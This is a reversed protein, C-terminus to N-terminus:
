RIYSLPNKRSDGATVEFHLHTGTSRGTTGVMAVVEGRKVADGAKVFLKSAHAYRTKLGHGHEILVMLGYGSSNWGATEVIGDAAAYIPSTFDGDIDVGTHRWGYYQTIARNSTPWLLRGAPLKSADADSPKQLPAIQASPTEEPFIEETERESFSGETGRAVTQPQMPPTPRTRYAIQNRIQQIEPPQGGPIVLETGLALPSTQSLNNFAAIEAMDGRYRLALKSLTDGKRVKAIIGSVPPIILTDGPRIYQRETLDNNWLITGIHVGFRHAIMGITDGEQVTYTETKTRPTRPMESPTETPGAVITGPIAISPAAPEADTDYDFDIHPIGSVTTSGLYNANKITFLPRMEEEVVEIRPETTLAFLISKQGIDQAHAQRGQLNSAIVALALTALTGHLLYRHTMLFLVVGRTPLALRNLRFRSTVGIRYVPLIVVKLVLRWIPALLWGLRQCLTQLGRKVM